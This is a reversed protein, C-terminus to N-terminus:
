HFVGISASVSLASDVSFGGVNVKPKILCFGFAPWVFWRDMLAGVARISTTPTILGQKMSNVGSTM